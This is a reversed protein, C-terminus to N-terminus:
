KYYALVLLGTCVIGSSFMRIKWFGKEGFIFISAVGAIVIGANTFAVVVAAPIQRMAHIVLAYALGICLGSIIIYITKPRLRPRWRGTERRIHFSLYAFSLLYGVTIFGILSGFSPLFGTAAKDSLSYFSTSLAALVAWLLAKANKEKWSTSALLYLGGVSISIGLWASWPLYQQFLVTGWVAILIPSSRVVPYVLAVPALEYAHNLAIFYLANSFASVLLVIVLTWGWQAETVLTYLGWPGLILCHALLAWWLMRTEGRQHRALLNWTVHMLVSLAIAWYAQNHM